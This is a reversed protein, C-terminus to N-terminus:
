AEKIEFVDSFKAEKLVDPTIGLATFYNVLTQMAPKNWSGNVMHWFTPYSLESRNSVSLASDKTCAQFLNPNLNITYRM